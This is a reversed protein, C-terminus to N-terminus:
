LETFRPYDRPNADPAAKELRHPRSCQGNGGKFYVLGDAGISSIVRFTLSELQRDLTETVRREIMADNKAPRLRILDEITKLTLHHDIWASASTKTLGPLHAQPADLRALLAIQPETAPEPQKGWIKPQLHDELLVAAVARPEAGSLVFGLLEALALQAETAPEVSASLLRLPEQWDPYSAM